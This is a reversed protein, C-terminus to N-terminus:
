SLSFELLWDYVQTNSYTDSWADHDADAYATFKVDCGFHRLMRIMLASEDIPIVQDMVGHFVWIGMDKLKAFDIFTYPPCVPLIAAIKEPALEALRWTGRGGMSLGTVYVRSEDVQYQSIVEDLLALLGRENWWSGEPCQPCVTIMPLTLGNEEIEHPLGVAAMKDLDTGREGAGHLFLLLPFRTYDDSAYAKPLYVRYPLNVDISIQTQLAQDIQNSM